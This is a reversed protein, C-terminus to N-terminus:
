KSRHKRRRKKKQKKEKKTRANIVDLEDWGGGLSDDPAASGAISEVNYLRFNAFDATQDAPLIIHRSRPQRQVLLTHLLYM